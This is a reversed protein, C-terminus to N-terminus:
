GAVTGQVIFAVNTIGDYNNPDAMVILFARGDATAVYDGVSPVIALGVSSIYIETTATVITSGDLYVNKQGMPVLKAPYATEVPDGGVNPDPPTSRTVTGAQGYSSILRNATQQLRAYLPNAM